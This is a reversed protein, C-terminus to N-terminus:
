FYKAYKTGYAEETREWTGRWGYIIMDPNVLKRKLLEDIGEGYCKPCLQWKM